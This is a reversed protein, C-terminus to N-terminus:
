VMLNGLAWKCVSTAQFDVITNPLKFKKEIATPDSYFSRRRRQPDWWSMRELLVMLVVIGPFRIVNPHLYLM